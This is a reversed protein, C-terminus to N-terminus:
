LCRLWKKMEAYKEPDERCARITSIYWALRDDDASALHKLYNERIILNQAETQFCLEFKNCFDPGMKYNEVSVYPLGAKTIQVPPVADGPFEAKAWEEFNSKADAFADEVSFGPAPIIGFELDSEIYNTSKKWTFARSGMMIVQVKPGLIGRVKDAFVILQPQVIENHRCVEKYYARMEDTVTIEATDM